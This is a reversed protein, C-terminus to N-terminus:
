INQKARSASFLVTFLCLRQSWPALLDLRFSLCYTFLLMVSQSLLYQSLHSLFYSSSAEKPLIILVSRESSTIYRLQSRSPQDHVLWTLFQPVLMGLLPFQLGQLPFPSPRLVLFFPLIFQITYTFSFHYSSVQFSPLPWIISPRTFLKNKIWLFHSAILSKLSYFAVFTNTRIPFKSISTLFATLRVM